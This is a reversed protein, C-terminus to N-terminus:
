MCARQPAANEDVLGLATRHASAGRSDGPSPLTLRACGAAFGRGACAAAVAGSAPSCRSGTSIVTKMIGKRLQARSNWNFCGRCSKNTSPVEPVFDLSGRTQVRGGGWCTSFSPPACRVWTPWHPKFAIYCWLLHYILFVPHLWPKQSRLYNCSPSQSPMLTITPSPWHNGKCRKSWSWRNFQSNWGM